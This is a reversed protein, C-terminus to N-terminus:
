EYNKHKSKEIEETFWLCLAIFACLFLLSIPTSKIFYGILFGGASLLLLKMILLSDKLSFLFFCIFINDLYDGINRKPYFSYLASRNYTDM